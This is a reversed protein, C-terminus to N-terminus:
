PRSAKSMLPRYREGVTAADNLVRGNLEVWAHAGFTGGDLSVGLRLDPNFGQRRLMWWLTLSQSLCNGPLPSYRRVRANALRLREVTVVPDGASRRFPWRTAIWEAAAMTRRYDLVRVAVHTLPVLAATAIIAHREAPPLDFWGPRM